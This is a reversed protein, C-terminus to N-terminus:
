KVKKIQFIVKLIIIDQNDTIKIQNSKIKISQYISSLNYILYNKERILFSLNINEVINNNLLKIKLDKINGDVLTIVKSVAMKM